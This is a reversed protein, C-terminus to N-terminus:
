SNPWYVLQSRIPQLLTFLWDSAMDALQGLWDSALDALQGLEQGHSRSMLKWGKAEIVNNFLVIIIYITFWLLMLIIQWWNM